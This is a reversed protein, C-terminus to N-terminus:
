MAPIIRVQSIKAGQISEVVASFELFHITDGEQPMAGLRYLILGAVTAFEEEEEPTLIIEKKLARELAYIPCDGKVSLSGDGHKIWAEQTKHFEDKIVGIVLHLLNDLTIFGVVGGHRGYVLAFHPMGSQFQRLLVLVPTRHPVKPIPRVFEKLAIKDDNDYEQLLLQIDKIHLLGIIQKSKQKFVPYRSFRYQNMTNLLEQKTIPTKIMVMDESSRMVDMAQLDALELTHALINSAQPTLEGHIQSSRLILKIEDTSHIQEKVNIVDLGLLRLLFNSCNNLTWIIPYMLWYFVYLPLATWLSIQESQRIALSKPMLEGVVIHLFSILSFGMIFSTVEILAPSDVGVTKMLPTFLRAFAPEGIWGLGLSALTIGLQCASLYADLHAHVTALIKGRLPYQAVIEQVRTSRLKVMGFEAAVFFANLLVLAFGACILLTDYLIM